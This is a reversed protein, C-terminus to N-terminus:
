LLRGGGIMRRLNLERVLQKRTDYLMKGIDEHRYKPHTSIDTGYTVM